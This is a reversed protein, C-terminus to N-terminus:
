HVTLLSPLTKNAPDNSYNAMQQEPWATEVPDQRGEPHRSLYEEFAPHETRRECRKVCASAERPDKEMAPYWM